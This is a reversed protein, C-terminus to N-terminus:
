KYKVFPRYMYGGHKSIYSFTLYKNTTHIHTGNDADYENSCWEWMYPLFENGGVKRLASNALVGYWKGGTTFDNSWNSITSEDLYGLAKFAVKWEAVSPVFWKKSDM